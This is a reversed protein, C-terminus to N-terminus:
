RDITTTDILCQTIIIICDTCMGTLNHFLIPKFLECPDAHYPKSHSQSALIAPDTFLMSRYFRRSPYECIAPHMRYQTNLMLVPYGAVRLREFLSQGYNARKATNSFVTAELQSPDGIMVVTKPNYKFPILAAPEVAQAAEDIIVADFTFNRLRNVVEIIQQSGSGSLTGCVVDAQDLIARRIDIPSYRKAQTNCQLDYQNEFNRQYTRQYDEVLSDLSCTNVNQILDSSDSNNRNNRDRSSM